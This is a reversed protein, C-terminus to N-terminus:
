GVGHHGKFAIAQVHGPDLGKRDGARFPAVHEEDLEFAVLV